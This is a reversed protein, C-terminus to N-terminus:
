YDFRTAVTVLSPVQGYLAGLALPLVVRLLFFRVVDRCGDRYSSVTQIVKASVKQIKQQLELSAPVILGRPCNSSLSVASIIESGCDNASGLDFWPPRQIPITHLYNPFCTRRSKFSGGGRLAM